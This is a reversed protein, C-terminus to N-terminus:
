FSPSREDHQLQMAELMARMTAAAEFKIQKSMALGSHTYIHEWKNGKFESACVLSKCRIKDLFQAQKDSLIRLNKISNLFDCEFKTYPDRGESAQIASVLRTISGFAYDIEAQEVKIKIKELLAFQRDTLTKKDCIDDLFKLEFGNLNADAGLFEIIKYLDNNDM